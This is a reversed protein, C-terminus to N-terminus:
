GLVKWHGGKAKDREARLSKIPAHPGDFPGQASAIGSYPDDPHMWKQYTSFPLFDDDLGNMREQMSNRLNNLTSAHGEGAVLNIKQGPDNLNDYLHESGDCLYRAYTYRKSRIARWESGDIWEYTHGMGQMFAFEPEPGPTGLVCHSLDMGEVNRPAEIGLLGALTPAIDPTNLCADSTGNPKITGSWRVLFPVRCAEEYFTLKFVRGQAGFMEGHDSTFVVITDDDCGAEKLTDMIEGLKDDLHNVMAYYCRRNDELREKWHNFREVSKERDAYQDPEEKFNDPHPFEVDKFKDYYGDPLNKPTWPDHPPSYSLFLAFPDDKRAADKIFDCAMTNWTDSQYGEIPVRVMEDGQDEWYYGHYNNHNFNYARWLSAHQFGMRAPGQPISRGHIDALHWKGLYGMNYGAEDLRYGITDQNPNLCMENIVMGTSSTYKGTFLSARYAACVPSVCTTNVFNVSESAMKDLNPTIAKADGAYGLVDHRLQDAFIYVLNPKKM